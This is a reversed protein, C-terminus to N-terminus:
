THEMEPPNVNKLHLISVDMDYLITRIALLFPQFMELWLTNAQLVVMLLIVSIQLVPAMLFLLKGATDGFSCVLFPLEEHLSMIIFHHFKSHYLCYSHSLCSMKICHFNFLLSLTVSLVSYLSVEPDRLRFSILFHFPLCMKLLKNDKIDTQLLHMFNMSGVCFGKQASMIRPPPFKLKPLHLTNM